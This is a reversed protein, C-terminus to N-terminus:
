FRWGRVSISGQANVGGVFYYIQQPTLLPLENSAVDFTVTGTEVKLRSVGYVDSSDPIVSLAIDQQGSSSNLILSLSVTTATTPIASSLSVLTPTTATGFALVSAIVQLVLDGRQLFGRLDSSSDNYVAGVYGKHTYGSPLTPSTDSTSMLGAVTSGNTIVWLHYWTSPAESGSDLGNVGSVTIDVTLNVNEVRVKGGSGDDLVLAGADIDVTSVTVWKNILSEYPALTNPGAVQTSGSSSSWPQLLWAGSGGDASSDYRVEVPGNTTIETTIASGDNNLLKKTGLLGGSTQGINLTSNTTSANAPTFWITAGDMNAYDSPIKVGSSGSIPTVEYTNASGSDVFGQSKVGHLFASEAMQLLNSDSTGDDTSLSQGSRSVLNEAEGLFNNINTAGM